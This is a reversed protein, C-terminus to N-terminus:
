RDISKLALTAIASVWAWENDELRRGIEDHAVESVTDAHMRVAQEPGSWAALGGETDQVNHTIVQAFHLLQTPTLQRNHAPRNAELLEPLFPM